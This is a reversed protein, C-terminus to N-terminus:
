PGLLGQCVEAPVTEIGAQSPGTVLDEDAKPDLYPPSHPFKLCTQSPAQERLAEQAAFQLCAEPVSLVSTCVSVLM